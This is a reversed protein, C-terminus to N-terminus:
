ISLSDKQLDNLTESTVNTVIEKKVVVSDNSDCDSDTEYTTMQFKGDEDEDEDDWDEEVVAALTMSLQNIDLLVSKRARQPQIGLMDENDYKEEEEEEYENMVVLADYDVDNKNEVHIADEEDNGKTLDSLSWPADGM